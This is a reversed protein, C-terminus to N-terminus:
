ENELPLLKKHVWFTDGDRPDPHYKLTHDNVVIYPKYDWSLLMEWIEELNDGTRRLQSAVLEILLTPCHRRITKCGGKLIQAEWGEVDIKIFDLEKLGFEVVFKDITTVSVEEVKTFKSNERIGIYALGFRFVGNDKIPTVLSLIGPAAGLGNDVVVVNKIRNFFMSLKLISRPYSGPEFSYVIGKPALRAFLKAYQGSHGGIDLITSESSIFKRLLFNMWVHHQKTIGKVLHALYTLKARLTLSLFKFQRTM